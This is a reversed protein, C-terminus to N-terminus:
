KKINLLLERTLKCALATSAGSPDLNPALEVIDCGIINLGSLIKLAGLLEKFSVGGAEPTGTGPLESPDLIDLDITLYVSPAASSAIEAVAKELGDFNFKNLRTNAKAWEFEAKEGSRIGFQYINGIGTIESVRRIVTAHSLKEGLYDNRLDAHADFHVINLGRYKAAAARIAGLSVLHEGGTMVPTKGDSLVRAAYAEIMELAAASSGIPLDLDGADHIKLEALDRDLYPSYTEIGISEARIAQPGFRAGPRFSATSDFPAGFIVIDADNYGRESGIFNRSLFVPKM